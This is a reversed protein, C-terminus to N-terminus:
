ERNANLLRASPASFNLALTVWSPALTSGGIRSISFESSFEASAGM